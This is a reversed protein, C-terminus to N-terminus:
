HGQYKFPHLRFANGDEGVHDPIVAGTDRRDEVGGTVHLLVDLQRARLADGDGVNELGVDVGVQDAAHPLQM